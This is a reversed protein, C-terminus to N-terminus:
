RRQTQRDKNAVADPEKIYFPELTELDAAEGAELQEAGLRGVVSAPPALVNAQALVIKGAGAELMVEKFVELAPGFVLTRRRLLRAIGGAKVLHYRSIRRLAGRRKEYLGLYVDGRGANIAPALFRVDTNISAALADLTNVAAVPVGLTLAMGKALSLGVRLATFMGPGISVAIGKIRRRSPDYRALLKEAMAFIAESHRLEGSTQVLALVSHHRVLALSAIAASTEIAFIM